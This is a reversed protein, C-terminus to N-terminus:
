FGFQYCELQRVLQVGTFQGYAGNQYNIGEVTFATTNTYDVPISMRISTDDYNLLTYFNKSLGSYSKMAYSCPLVKFNPNGTMVKFTELMLELISKIPFQASSPTAMGLFDDEPVIFHTPWATRNCQIRYSNLIAAIFNSLNQPTTALSYITQTLSTTDFPIPQNFLGLCNGGAGNDGAAGLFAIRQIGTDWNTKRSVEKATILDWNGSKAAYQLDFISWSIAKAWNIVKLNVSDVGADGKALRANDSGTNLIGTEFADGLIYSRYTTLNTSWAGEGVVVPLYDAFAIHFFKQESVKKIITTLTTIPIEYGLSNFYRTWHAAVLSEQRNLFIPKGDVGDIREVMEGTLENLVRM